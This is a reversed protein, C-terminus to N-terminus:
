GHFVVMPPSYRMDLKQFLRFGNGTDAFVQLIYPLQIDFNFSLPAQITSPLGSFGQLTALTNTTFMTGYVPVNLSPFFSNQDGTGLLIRNSPDMTYKYFIQPQGRPSVPETNISILYVAGRQIPFSHTNSVPIHQVPVPSPPPPMVPRAAPSPAIPVPPPPLAPRVPIFAPYNNQGYHNILQTMIERLTNGDTLKFWLSILQTTKDSIWYSLQNPPLYQECLQFCNTSDLHASIIEFPMLFKIAEGTSITISFTKLKNFDLTQLRLNSVGSAQQLSKLMYENDLLLSTIDKLKMINQILPISNSISAVSLGNVWVMDIPGDVCFALHGLAPRGYVYGQRHLSQLQTFATLLYMFFNDASLTALSLFNVNDILLVEWTETDM